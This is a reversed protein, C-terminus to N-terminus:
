TSKKNLRQAAVVLGVPVLLLLLCLFLPASLGREGKGFSLSLKLVCNVFVGIGANRCAIAFGLM